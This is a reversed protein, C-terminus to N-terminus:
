KRSSHPREISFGARVQKEREACTQNLFWYSYGRVEVSRCSCKLLSLSLFFFAVCLTHRASVDIESPQQEPFTMSALMSGVSCSPSTDSNRVSLVNPTSRLFVAPVLIPPWERYSPICVPSLSRGGHTLLFCRSRRAGCGHSM